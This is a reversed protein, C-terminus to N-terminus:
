QKKDVNQTTIRKDITKDFPYIFSCIVTTGSNEGSIDKSYTNANTKKKCKTIKAGQLRGDILTCKMHLSIPPPPLTM